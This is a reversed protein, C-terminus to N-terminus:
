LIVSVTLIDRLARKITNVSAKLDVLSKKKNEYFIFWCLDKRLFLLFHDNRSLLLSAYILSSGLGICHGDFLNENKTSIKDIFTM